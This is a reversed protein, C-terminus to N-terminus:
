RTSPVAYVTDFNQKYQKETLWMDGVKKGDDQKHEGPGWPNIVHVKLEGDREEVKDVIYAHNPVVRSDDVEDRFPRWSPEDETGLAVPGDALREKLDALNGEGTTSPTAGTIAAFADSSYGMVLDEYSGGWYEAAAKEYVSAWSPDGAPDM